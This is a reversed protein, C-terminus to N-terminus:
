IPQFSICLKFNIKVQKFFTGSSVIFAFFLTLLIDCYGPNSKSPRSPDTYANDDSEVMTPDDFALTPRRALAIFQIFERWFQLTERRRCSQM